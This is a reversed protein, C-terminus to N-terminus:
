TEQRLKEVLASIRAESASNTLSLQERTKVCEAECMKEVSAVVKSAEARATEAATNAVHVESLKHSQEELYSIRKTLREVARSSDTRHQELAADREREVEALRTLLDERDGQLDRVAQEARKLSKEMSKIRTSLEGTNEDISTNTKESYKQTLQALRAVSYVKAQVSDVQQQMQDIRSSFAQSTMCAASVRELQVELFSLYASRDTLLREKEVVHCRLSSYCM